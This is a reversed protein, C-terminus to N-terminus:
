KKGFGSNLNLLFTHTHDVYAIQLEKELTHCISLFFLPCFSRV